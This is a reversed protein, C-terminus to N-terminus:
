PRAPNCGCAAEEIVRVINRAINAELEGDVCVGQWVGVILKTDM